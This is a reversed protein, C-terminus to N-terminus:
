KILERLINFNGSLELLYDKLNFGTEEYIFKFSEDGVLIKWGGQKCATMAASLNDERLFLLVPIYGMESLLKGYQKFKKLTGSDGSGVRYKTDIAYNGIILDCPEDSGVKLAPKFNLCKEEVLKVILLQWCMGLERGWFQGNERKMEPTISFLEMLIDYENNTEAYVKNSFSTKYKTLIEALKNEINM